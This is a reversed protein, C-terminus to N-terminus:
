EKSLSGSQALDHKAAFHEMLSRHIFIYGNGTRRLLIREVMGELYAILKKDRIPFPLINHRALLWRLTYHKITTDGGYDLFASLM